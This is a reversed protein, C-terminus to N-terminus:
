LNRAHKSIQVGSPLPPSFPPLAFKFAFCVSGQVWFYRSGQIYKYKIDFEINLIVKGKCTMSSYKRLSAPWYKSMLIEGLPLYKPM